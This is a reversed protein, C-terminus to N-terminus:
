RRENARIKLEYLCHQIAEPDAGARLEMDARLVEQAVIGIVTDKVFPAM